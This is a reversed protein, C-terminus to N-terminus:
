LRTRYIFVVRLQDFEPCRRTREEASPTRPDTARKEMLAILEPSFLHSQCDIIGPATSSARSPRPSDAAAAGLPLAALASGAAALFQRRTARM